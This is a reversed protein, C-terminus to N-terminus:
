SQINRRVIEKWKTIQFDMPSKGQIERKDNTLGDSLEKFEESVSWTGGYYDGAATLATVLSDTSAILISQAEPKFQWISPDILFFKGEKFFVAIDHARQSGFIIGSGKIIYVKLTPDDATLWAAALRALESCSDRTLLGLPKDSYSHLLDM